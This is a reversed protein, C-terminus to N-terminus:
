QDNNRNTLTTLVGVTLVTIGAGAAISLAVWGSTHWWRCLLVAVVAATLATGCVVAYNVSSHVGARVKAGGSMSVGDSSAQLSFGVHDLEQRLLPPRFAKPAPTLSSEDLQDGVDPRAGETSGTM